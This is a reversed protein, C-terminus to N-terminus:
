GGIIKVDSLDDVCEIVSMPLQYDNGCNSHKHPSSGKKM